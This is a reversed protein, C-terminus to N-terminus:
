KNNSFYQTVYKAFYYGIEGHNIFTEEKEFCTYGCTKLDEVLDAMDDQWTHEKEIKSYILHIATGKGRSNLILTKLKSNLRERAVIMENESSDEIKKDLMMREFIPLHASKSLYDGIHYQCAGAFVSTVENLLGYYIACTGGKSSGATYIQKYNKRGKIYAIVEQTLQEPMNNGNEYWYYSGKYGWTDNIFLKDCKVPYLSKIYNYVRTDDSNFGSFVIILSESHNNIFMYKLNGGGGRGRYTHEHIMIFIHFLKSKLASIINRM